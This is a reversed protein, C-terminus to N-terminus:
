NWYGVSEISSFRLRLDDREAWIRRSLSFLAELRPFTVSSM